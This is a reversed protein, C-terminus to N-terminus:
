IPQFSRLQSLPMCTHQCQGPFGLFTHKYPKSEAFAEAKNSLQLLATHLHLEIASSCVQIEPGSLINLISSNFPLNVLGQDLMSVCRSYYNVEQTKGLIQIAEQAKQEGGAGRGSLALLKSLYDSTCSAFPMQLVCGKRCCGPRKELCYQGRALWAKFM